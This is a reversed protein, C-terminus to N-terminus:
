IEKINFHNIIMDLKNEVRKLNGTNCECKKKYYEAECDDIFSCDRFMCVSCDRGDCFEDFSVSENFDKM